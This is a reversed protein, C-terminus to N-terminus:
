KIEKIYEAPIYEKVMPHPYELTDMEVDLDDANIELVKGGYTDVFSEADKLNDHCHVYMVHYQGLEGAEPWKEAYIDFADNGERVYLSELDGGDYDKAVHYLKM